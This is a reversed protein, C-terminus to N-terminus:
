EGEPMEGSLVYLYSIALIGVLKTAEFFADVIEFYEAEPKPPDKATIAFNM